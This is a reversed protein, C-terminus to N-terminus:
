ESGEKCAVDNHSFYFLRATMYDVFLSAVRAKSPFTACHNGSYHIYVSDSRYNCCIYTETLEEIEVKHPWFPVPSTTQIKKTFYEKFLHKMLNRADLILQKEKEFVSSEELARKLSEVYNFMRTHDELCSCVQRYRKLWKKWHRKLRDASPIDHKNVKIIKM